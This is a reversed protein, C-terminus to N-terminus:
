KFRYLGAGETSLWIGGDKGRSISLVARGQWRDPPNVVEVKGARLALLGASGSGVWLGGEEDQCVCRVWNQPLGNTRDLHMVSHGRVGEVALELSSKAVVPPIM